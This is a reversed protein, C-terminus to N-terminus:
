HQKQEEKEKKERDKLEEKEKKEQGDATRKFDERIDRYILKRQKDYRKLEENLMGAAMTITMNDYKPGQCAILMKECLDPLRAALKSYEAYEEITDSSVGPPLKFSDLEQKLIPGLYNVHLAFYDIWKKRPPLFGNSGMFGNGGFSPIVAGGIVNNGGIFVVDPRQAETYAGWSADKLHKVTEEIETLISEANQETTAISGQLAGGATAASPTTSPTSSPARPASSPSETSGPSSQASSPAATVSNPGEGEVPAGTVTPLCLAPHITLGCLAGSFCAITLLGSLLLRNRRHNNLM